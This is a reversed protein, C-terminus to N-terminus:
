SFNTPLSLCTDSSQLLFEFHGVASAVQPPAYVSVDLFLRRVEEESHLLVGRGLSLLRDEDLPARLLLVLAELLLGLLGLSELEFFHEAEGFHPLVQYIEFLRDDAVVAEQVQEEDELVEM